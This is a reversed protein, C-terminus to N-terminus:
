AEILKRNKSRQFWILIGVTILAMPALMMFGNNEYGYHYLGTSEAITKGKHGLVEYGMLKGSGLLERFFSVIILIVAYGITNGVGDLIAKWPGNALAFAEFRGMIICNTIILGVFVSLQKSVDYSYAKLVQDVLIVLFAVIILQVIIRIRNPILNRLLSVILNGFVLVFMVALSMVIAAKLQVTIALASCIGLVQVTVPNDDNLPDILLRKNKQSFLAEKEGAMM